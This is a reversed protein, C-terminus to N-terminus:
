GGIIKEWAKLLQKAESEWFIDEPTPLKKYYTYQQVNEWVQAVKAIDDFDILAGAPYDNIFRQWAPNAQALMPTQLAACEYFKTPIRGAVSQNIDYPLVAFQAQQLAMMIESHPVMQQGGTLRIFPYMKLLTQLQEWDHHNPCFGIINLTIDPDIQHLQTAWAIARFVGYDRSITGSYVLRGKIRSVPSLVSRQVKNAVVTAKRKMFPMEQAYCTEALLYQAIRHHCFREILRISQALPWRLIMPFVQTYRVNRAYNEQVDYMIKVKCFWSYFYVPLLLEFTAVVVISPKLRWLKRFFRPGALLRHLSLRKFHYLPHFHVNPPKYDPESAPRFGIFHFGHDPYKTALARGIKQYLRVDDVPKLISALVITPKM